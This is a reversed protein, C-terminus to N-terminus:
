IIIQVTEDVHPRGCLDFTFWASGDSVNDLEERSGGLAAILESVFKLFHIILADLDCQLVKTLLWAETSHPLDSCVRGFMRAGHDPPTAKVIMAKKSRSRWLLPNRARKRGGGVVRPLVMSRPIAVTTSTGGTRWESQLRRPEQPCYIWGPRISSSGWCGRSQWHSVGLAPMLATHLLEVQSAVVVVVSGQVMTWHRGTGPGGTR